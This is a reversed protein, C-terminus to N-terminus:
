GVQYVDAHYTGRNQIPQIRPQGSRLDIDEFFGCVGRFARCDRRLALRNQKLRQDDTLVMVGDFFGDIPGKLTAVKLLARDFAQQAVDGATDQKVKEFADYLTQECSEQFLGPNITVRRGDQLLDGRQTAQKIINVVRKFAVALPEFDPKAKLEQLAATRRSVAPLDDISVSTVASILDKAFGQEALLYEM